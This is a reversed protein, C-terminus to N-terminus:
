QERLFKKKQKNEIIVSLRAYYCIQMISILVSQLVLQNSYYFLICFTRNKKKREENFNCSVQAEPLKRSSIRYISM